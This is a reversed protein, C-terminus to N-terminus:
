PKIYITIKDQADNYIFTDLISLLAFSKFFPVQHNFSQRAPKQPPAKIGESEGQLVFGSIINTGPPPPLAWSFMGRKPM